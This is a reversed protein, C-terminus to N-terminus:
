RMHSDNVGMTNLRDMFNTEVFSEASFLQQASAKSSNFTKLSKNEFLTLSTKQESDNLPSINIHESMQNLMPMNPNSMGQCDYSRMPSDKDQLSYGQTDSCTDFPSNQNCMFEGPTNQPPLLSSLLNKSVDMDDSKAAIEQTIKIPTCIVPLDPSLENQPADEEM